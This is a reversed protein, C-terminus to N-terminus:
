QSAVRDITMLSHDGDTQIVDISLVNNRSGAIKIQKVMGAMKADSPSLLLTWHEVGGELTLKYSHELAARDGALTGRVSDIFGALEPYDQLQLTHKKNGREVVLLNGEVVMSEPKPKLTRKELRDPATYFLEGSSELPRDLMAIYKIEVFSVHTPKAKSLTQMLQDIDWAAAVSMAPQLMALLLVVLACHFKYASIAFNM